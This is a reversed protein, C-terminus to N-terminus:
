DPSLFKNCLNLIDTPIKTKDILYCVFDNFKVSKNFCQIYAYLSLAEDTSSM